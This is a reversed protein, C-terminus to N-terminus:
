TSSFVGFFFSTNKKYLESHLKLFLIIIPIYGGSFFVFSFASIQDLLETRFFFRLAIEPFVFFKRLLEGTQSLILTQEVTLLFSFLKRLHICLRQPRYVANEVVKSADLFFYFILFFFMWNKKKKLYFMWNKKEERMTSNENAGLTFIRVREKCVCLLNNKKGGNKKESVGLFRLHDNM